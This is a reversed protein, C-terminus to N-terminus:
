NAKQHPPHSKFGRLAIGCPELGQAKSWAQSGGGKNKFFFGSNLNKAGGDPYVGPNVRLWAELLQNVSRYGEAKALTELRNKLAESVVLFTYGPKPM